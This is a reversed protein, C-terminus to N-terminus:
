GPPFGHARNWAQAGTYADVMGWIWLGIVAIIGLLCFVSFVVSAGWGVLIGAGKGTEGNMITGVGPLFFSVLLSIGPSKPRLAHVPQV